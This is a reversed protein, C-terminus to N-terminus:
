LKKKAPADELSSETDTSIDPISKSEVKQQIPLLDTPNKWRTAKKEDKKDKDNSKGYAASLRFFLPSAQQFYLSNLESVISKSLEHKNNNNIPQM